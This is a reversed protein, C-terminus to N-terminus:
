RENWAQRPVWDDEGDGFEDRICSGSVILSPADISYAADRFAEITPFGADLYRMFFSLASTGDGTVIGSM